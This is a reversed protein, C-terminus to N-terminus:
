GILDAVSPPSYDKKEFGGAAKAAPTTFPIKAKTAALAAKSPTNEDHVCDETAGESNCLILADVAASLGELASDEPVGEAASCDEEEEEWSSQLEERTMDDLLKLVKQVSKSNLADHGTIRSLASSWVPMCMNSKRTFYLIGTAIASAAIPKFAHNVMTKTALATVSAYFDPCSFETYDVSDVSDVPLRQALYIYSDLFAMPTRAAFYNSVMDFPSFM